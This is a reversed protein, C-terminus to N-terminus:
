TSAHDDSRRPDRNVEEVLEQVTNGPFGPHAVLIQPLPVPVKIQMYRDIPKDRLSAEDIAVVVAASGTM